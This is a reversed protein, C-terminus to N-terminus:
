ANRRAKAKDSLEKHIAELTRLIEGEVLGSVTDWLASVLIYLERDKIQGATHRVVWSQLTATTKRSLEANFERWDTQERQDTMM